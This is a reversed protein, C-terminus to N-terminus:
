SLLLQDKLVKCFTCLCKSVTVLHGECHAKSPNLNPTLESGEQPFNLYKKTVRSGKVVSLVGILKYHSIIKM